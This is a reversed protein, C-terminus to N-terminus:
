YLGNKQMWSIIFIWYLLGGCIWKCRGRDIGGTRATNKGPEAWHPFLYSQFRRWFFSGAIRLQMIGADDSGAFSCRNNNARIRMYDRLQVCRRFSSLSYKSGSEWFHYTENLGTQRRYSQLQRSVSCLVLLLRVLISLQRLMRIVEFNIIIGRSVFKVSM